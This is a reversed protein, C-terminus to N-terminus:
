VVHGEGAFVEVGGVGEAGGVGEEEVFHANDEVVLVSEFVGGFEESLGEEDRFFGSGIWVGPEAGAGVQAVGVAAQAQEVLSQPHLPSTTVTSIPTSM